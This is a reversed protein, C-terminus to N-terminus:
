YITLTLYINTSYILLPIHSHIDFGNEELKGLSLFPFSLLHCLLIIEAFCDSRVLVSAWTPTCGAPPSVGGGGGGGHSETKGRSLPWGWLHRGRQVNPSLACVWQQALPRESEQPLIVCPFTVPFHARRMLLPATEPFFFFVFCSFFPFFAESSIM